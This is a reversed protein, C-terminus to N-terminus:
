FLIHDYGEELFPRMLESLAQLYHSENYFPKIFELRFSYGKKRHIERAYEVATEYSAMAYHPYLPIAIVEELEPMKELLREYADEMSPNGYRMAIEVPEEVYSQLAEQLQRTLVILPSGEKTWITAYAEASKAARFPVIIGGVLIKRFLWPYDIVRKDMLFEMLYTYVSRTSTSVPSGLNLLLIARKGTPTM